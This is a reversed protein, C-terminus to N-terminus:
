LLVMDCAAVAVNQRCTDIFLTYIGASADPSVVVGDVAVDTLKELAAVINLLSDISLMALYAAGTEAPATGYDSDM